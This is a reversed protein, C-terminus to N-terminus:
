LTIKLSFSKQMPYNMKLFKSFVVNIFYIMSIIVSISLDHYYPEEIKIIEFIPFINNILNEETERKNKNVPIFIIKNTMSSMSAGPGFM